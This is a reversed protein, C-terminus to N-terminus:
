FIGKKRMSVLKIVIRTVGIIISVLGVVIWFYINNLFIGFLLLVGFTSLIFRDLKNPVNVIAHMILILAYIFSFIKLWFFEFNLSLTFFMPGLIVLINLLKKM